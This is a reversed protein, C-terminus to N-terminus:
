ARRQYDPDLADDLVRLAREIGQSRGDFWSRLEPSAASLAEARSDQLDVSLATIAAQLLRDPAAAHTTTM